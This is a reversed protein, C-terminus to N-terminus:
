MAKKVADIIAVREAESEAKGQGRTAKSHVLEGNVVVEFRGTTGKDASAVAEFKDAGVVDEIVNIL